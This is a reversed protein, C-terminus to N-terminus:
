AVIRRSRVGFVPLRGLAIMSDLLSQRGTSFNVVELEEGTSAEVAREIEVTRGFSSLTVSAGLIVLLPENSKEHSIKEIASTVFLYHDTRDNALFKAYGSRMLHQLGIVSVPVLVVATWIMTTVALGSPQAVGRLFAKFLKAYRSSTVSEM